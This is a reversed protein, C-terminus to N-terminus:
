CQSEFEGAQALALWAQIDERAPCADNCLPLFIALWIPMLVNVLVSQAM